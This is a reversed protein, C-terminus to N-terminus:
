RWENGPRLLVCIEIQLTGTGRRGDKSYMEECIVNYTRFPGFDLLMILNGPLSESAFLLYKLDCLGLAFAASSSRLPM